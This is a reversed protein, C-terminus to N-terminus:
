VDDDAVTAGLGNALGVGVTVATVALLGLGIFSGGSFARQSPASVLLRRVRALLSGGGAAASTRQMARELAILAFQWVSHVPVWGLPEFFNSMRQILTM